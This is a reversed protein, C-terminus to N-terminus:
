LGANVYFYVNDGLEDYSGDYFFRVTYEGEDLLSTDIEMSGGSGELYKWSIATDIGPLADFKYLGVWNRNSELQGDLIFYEFFVKEGRNVEGSSNLSSGKVHFYMLAMEMLIPNTYEFLKEFLVTGQSGSQSSPSFLQNFCLVFDDDDMDPRADIDSSLEFLQEVNIGYKEGFQHVDHRGEIFCIVDELFSRYRINLPPLRSVELGASGVSRQVRRLLSRLRITLQSAQYLFKHGREPNIIERSSRMPRFVIGSVPNANVVQQTIRGPYGRVNKGLRNALLQATSYRGGFASYCSQLDIMTIKAMDVGLVTVHERLFTALRGIPQNNVTAPAGHAQVIMIRTNAGGTFVIRSDPGMFSRLINLRTGHSSSSRSTYFSIINPGQLNVIDSKLGERAKGLANDMNESISTEPLSRRISQEIVDASGSLRVLEVAEDSREVTAKIVNVKDSYSLKSWHMKASLAAVGKHAAGKLGRYVKLARRVGSAGLKGAPGVNVLASVTGAIIAENCYAEAVEPDDVTESLRLTALVYGVDLAVNVVWLIARFLLSGSSPIATSTILSSIILIRRLTEMRLQEEEEGPSYVLRDIDKELRKLYNHISIDAIKKIGESYRFSFPTTPHISYSEDSILPGTWALWAGNNFSANKYQESDSIPLRNLIFARFDPTTPVQPLISDKALNGGNLAVRVAPDRSALIEDIHFFTKDDVNFLIGSAAGYPIFFLGHLPINNFLVEKAIEDGAIFRRVAREFGPRRFPGNLYDLCHSMIKGQLVRSFAERKIGREINRYENLASFMNDQLDRKWLWDVLDREAFNAYQEVIMDKSINEDIITQQIILLHRGTVIDMMSFDHERVIRHTLIVGTPKKLLELKVTDNRAFSTNRALNFVSLQDGIYKDIYEDLYLIPDYALKIDDLVSEGHLKIAEIPDFSNDFASRGGRVLYKGRGAIHSKDKVKGGGWGFIRKYELVMTMAFDSPLEEAMARLGNLFCKFKLLILDGGYGLSIEQFLIDAIQIMKILYVVEKENKSLWRAREIEPSSDVVDKLKNFIDAGLPTMILDQTESIKEIQDQVDVKQYYAPRGISFERNGTAQNTRWQTQAASDSEIIPELEFLFDLYPVDLQEFLGMLDEQRLQKDEIGQRTASSGNEVGVPASENAGMVWKYLGYAGAPVGVFLSGLVTKGLMGSSIRRVAAALASVPASQLVAISDFVVSRGVTTAVGAVSVSVSVSVLPEAVTEGSTVHSAKGDFHVPVVDCNQEQGDGASHLHGAGGLSKADRTSKELKLTVLDSLVLYDLVEKALEEDLVETTSEELRQVLNFGRQLEGSYGGDQIEPDQEWEDLAKKIAQMLPERYEMRNMSAYIRRWPEDLVLGSKRKEPRPGFLPEGQQWAALVPAGIGILRILPEVWPRIPKPEWQPLDDHPMRQYAWVAEDSSLRDLPDEDNTLDLMDESPWLNSSDENDGDEYEVDCHAEKSTPTMSKRRNSVLIYPM